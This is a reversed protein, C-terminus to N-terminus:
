IVLPLGNAQFCASDRGHIEEFNALRCVVYTKIVTATIALFAIYVLNVHSLM